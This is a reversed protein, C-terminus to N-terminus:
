EPIGRGGGDDGYFFASPQAILGWEVNVHFGPLDLCEQPVGAGGSIVGDKVMIYFGAVERDGMLRKPTHAYEETFGWNVKSLDLDSAELLKAGIKGAYWCWEEQAFEWRQDPTAIDFDLFKGAPMYRKDKTVIEKGNWEARDQAFVTAALALSVTLAILKTPQM